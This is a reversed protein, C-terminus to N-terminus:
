GRNKERHMGGYNKYSKPVQYFNIARGAATLLEFSSEAKTQM